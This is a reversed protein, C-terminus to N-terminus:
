QRMYEPAMEWEDVFAQIAALEDIAWIVSEPSPAPTETKRREIWAQAERKSAFWVPHASYTTTCRFEYESAKRTTDTRTVAWAILDAQNAIAWGGVLKTPTLTDATM